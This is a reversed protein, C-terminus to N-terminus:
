WMFADIAIPGLIGLAFGAIAGLLIHFAIRM